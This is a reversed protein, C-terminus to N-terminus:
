QNGDQDGSDDSDHRPPFLGAPRGHGDWNLLNVRRAATDADAARDSTQRHKLAHFTEVAVPAPRGSAEGFPASGTV